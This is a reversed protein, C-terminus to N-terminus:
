VILVAIGVISSFSHQWHMEFLLDEKDALFRKHFM